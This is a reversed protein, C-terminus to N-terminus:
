TESCAPAGSTCARLIQDSWLLALDGALVASGIGIDDAAVPTRGSCHRVALARHVTPRGRRTESHDMVDDHILCFAHFMELAAGMRVALVPRGVGGVAYWGLVCLLPRIRNGGAALFDAIVTPVDAPLGEGKAADVKGGIFDTLITDIEQRVLDPDLWDSGHPAGEQGAATNLSNGTTTLVKGTEGSM